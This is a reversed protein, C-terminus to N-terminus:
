RSCAREWLPNHRRHNQIQTLSIRPQNCAKRAIRMQKQLNTCRFQVKNQAEAGVGQHLGQFAFVQVTDDVECGADARQLHVVLGLLQLQGIQENDDGTFPVCHAGGLVQLHRRADHM